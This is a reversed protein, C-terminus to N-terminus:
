GRRRLSFGAWLADAADKGVLLQGPPIVAELDYADDGDVLFYGLVRPNRADAPTCTAAVLPSVGLARYGAQDLFTWECGPRPRPGVAGGSVVSVEVRVGTERHTLVLRPGGAEFGPTAIWTPPLRLTWPYRHDSWIAGTVSGAPVQDVVSADAGRDDVLSPPPLPRPCGGLLLALIM